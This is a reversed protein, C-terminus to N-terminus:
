TPIPIEDLFLRISNSANEWKARGSATLILRHALVFPALYKVDDPCVYDRGQIFAYAKSASQLAISGRPSVGLLIGEDDRTKESIAIIYRNILESCETQSATKKMEEISKLTIVESLDKAQISEPRNLISLENERGPYGMELRMLFRDMQAEPLHYTGYTEVPNQTALVMFPSPLEYTEGDISIQSEEMVELLASQTKPSSRNIEDALLFNCFAAGQRFTLEKTAPDILSFGTIDSPMVDPTLQLRNFVGGCSVSLASALQTKGVGPIDEILVHGGALLATITLEIMDRKGIIVKEINAILKEIDPNTLDINKM